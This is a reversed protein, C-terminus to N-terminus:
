GGLGGLVAFPSFPTAYPEDRTVEQTSAEAVVSSGPPAEERIRAALAEASDEDDAGAVVFRWRHVTRIGDAGLRQALEEADRHSDLRVRVEFMPFGRERSEDREAQIREAHEQSLDAPSDPLEAEPSEWREAVPHWREFDMEISWAHQDSLKEIARRAAEAQARSDAYCFVVSGDRSVVVRSRFATELTHELDRAQLRAVLERAAGEHELQVRLRWDEAMSFSLMTVPSGASLPRAAALAVM